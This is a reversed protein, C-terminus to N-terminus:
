GHVDWQVASGFGGGTWQVKAVKVGDPVQFVVAGTATEGQAVQIEGNNFNTYGAIDDIDFNYTQGNSGVIVADSNADEDKPSGSVAKIKFVAGMFRKGNDPTSFEDAGRAPDIIKVLTVRYTDGEGDSVDFYSGIRAVTAKHTAAPSATSDTASNGSPTTSVGTGHSSIASIAIIAVFLAGIGSLINRVLHRKRRPPPAQPGFGPGPYPFQPGPPGYPQRSVRTRRSSTLRSAPIHSSRRSIDVPEQYSPQGQWQNPYKSTTRIGRHRSSGWSARGLAAAIGREGAESSACSAAATCQFHSGSM